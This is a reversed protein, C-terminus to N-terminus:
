RMPWTEIKGDAQVDIWATVVDHYLLAIFDLVSYDDKNGM